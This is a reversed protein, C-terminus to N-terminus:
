SAAPEISEIGEAVGARHREIAEIKRLLEAKVEAIGPQKPGYRQAGRRRGAKRGDLWKVVQLAFSAEVPTITGREEGGNEEHPGAAGAARDILKNAYDVLAYELRVEADALAAEFRRAFAPCERRRRWATNPNRGIARASAAVNGSEELRAFFAKDDRANWQNARASRLQTRGAASRHITQLPKLERARLREPASAVAEDWDRAFWEDRRRLNYPSGRKVGAQRAAESVNGTEGLVKLLMDREAPTMAPRRAKAEGM